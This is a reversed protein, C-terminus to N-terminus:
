LILIFKQNIINNILADVKMLLGPDVLHKLELTPLITTDERNVETDKEWVVHLIVKNYAKDYQHKHMNWDSSKIHIEVDGNWEVDGIKLKAQEFDPGSNMNNLGQQLVQVIEGSETVAQLSKYYQYKWIFHLIKEQM